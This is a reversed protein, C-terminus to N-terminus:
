FGLIAVHKAKETGRNNERAHMWWILVTCAIGAAGLATMVTMNAILPALARGLPAFWSAVGYVFGWAGAVAQALISFAQLTFVVLGTFRSTADGSIQGLAGQTGPQGLWVVGLGLFAACAAAYGWGIVRVWRARIRAPVVRALVRETFSASPSLLPMREIATYVQRYAAADSTCRACAAIHAEFTQFAAIPLVGDLFDQVRHGEACPSSHADGLVQALVRDTLSADHAPLPIADLSAYLKRYAILDARCSACREVHSEFSRLTHGSMLGDLYDQVRPAVKCTNM